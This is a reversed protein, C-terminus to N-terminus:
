FRRRQPPEAVAHRRGSGEVTEPSVRYEVSLQGAAAAKRRALKFAEDPTDAWGVCVWQGGTTRIYAAFCLRGGASPQGSERELDNGNSKNM